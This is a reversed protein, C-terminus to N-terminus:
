RTVHAAPEELFLSSVESVIYWGLAIWLAMGAAIGIPIILGYPNFHIHPERDRVKSLDIIEASM